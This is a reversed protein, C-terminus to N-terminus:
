LVAKESKLSPERGEKEAEKPEGIRAGAGICAEQGVISYEVVAGAEVRSYPLIISDRVVAGEGIYTGYSLVSNEVTGYIRAGETLMSNIIKAQPAILHPPENANRTYIRWSPDSLKLSREKGLLEM